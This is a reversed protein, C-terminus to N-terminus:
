QRGWVDLHPVRAPVRQYCNSYIEMFNTKNVRNRSSNVWVMLESTIAKLNVSLVPKNFLCALSNVRNKQSCDLTSACETDGLIILVPIGSLSARVMISTVLHYLCDTVDFASLQVPDHVASYVQEYSRM